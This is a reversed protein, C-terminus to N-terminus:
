DPDPANATFDERLALLYGECDTYGAGKASGAMATFLENWYANEDFKTRTHRSGVRYHEDFLREHHEDLWQTYLSEHTAWNPMATELIVLAIQHGEEGVEGKQEYKWWVIGCAILLAVIIGGVKEM